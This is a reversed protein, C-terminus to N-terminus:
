DQQWKEGAGAVNCAERGVAGWSGVLGDDSANLDNLRWNEQRM